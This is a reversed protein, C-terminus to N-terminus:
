ILEFNATIRNNSSIEKIRNNTKQKKNRGFRTCTWDSSRKLAYILSPASTTITYRNKNKKYMKGIENLFKIGFGAGQYDPLIVLRHVKKINPSKPHPFHLISIFGAIENNVIAIFVNEDDITRNDVAFRLDINMLRDVEEVSMESIDKQLRKTKKPIDAYKEDIQDSTMNSYEESGRYEVEVPIQTETVFMIDAIHKRELENLNEDGGKYEIYDGIKKHLPYLHASDIKAGANFIYNAAGGISKYYDTGLPVTPDYEKKEEPYLISM